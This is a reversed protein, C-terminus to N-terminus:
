PMGIVIYAITAKGGQIFDVTSLAMDTGDGELGVTGQLIVNDDSDFVRFFTASGSALISLEPNIPNFIIRKNAVTGCPDSCEMEALVVNSSADGTANPYGTVEDWPISGEYIRIKAPGTGADAADRLATMMENATPVSFTIM